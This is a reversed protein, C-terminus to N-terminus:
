RQGWVLRQGPLIRDPDPGILTRNAAYITQWSTGFKAAISSLSDGSRVTYAHDVRDTVTLVQGPMIKDPDPGIVARNAAYLAQWTTHHATAIGTLTDGARVTYHSQHHVPPPDDPAPNGPAAALIEPRFVSRDFDRGHAGGSWQQGMVGAPLHTPASDVWRALWEAGTNSSSYVWPHHWGYAKLVSRWAAMAARAGAPDHAFTTHEVDYFVPQSVDVGYLHLRDLAYNAAAKGDDAGIARLPAVVIPWWERGTKRVAAVEGLTWVHPTTDPEGLYGCVARAASPLKSVPVPYAMDVVTVLGSM